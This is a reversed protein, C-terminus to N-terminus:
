DKSAEPKRLPPIVDKVRQTFVQWDTRNDKRRPSGRKRISLTDHYVKDDQLSTAVFHLKDALSPTWLAAFLDRVEELDVPEQQIAILDGIDRLRGAQLKLAWIAEPRAIPVESHTAADLLVLRMRRPNKTIWTEPIDVKANRDRVVGPLVDITVDDRRWRGVKGTYNQVFDVPVNVEEFGQDSLWQLAGELASVPLVIDLDDSYRPPGYAAVAYGGIIAGGLRWPWSDMVEAVAMERETTDILCNRRQDM